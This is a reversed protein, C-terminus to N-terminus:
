GGKKRSRAPEHELQEPEDQHDLDLNRRFNERAEQVTASLADV